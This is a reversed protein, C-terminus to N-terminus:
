WKLWEALGKTTIIKKSIPDQSINGQPQSPVM